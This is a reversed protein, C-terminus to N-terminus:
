ASYFVSPGDLVDLDAEAYVERCDAVTMGRNRETDKETDRPNAGAEAWLLNAGAAAGIVRPERTFSKNSM